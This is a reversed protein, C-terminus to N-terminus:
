LGKQEMNAMMHWGTLILNPDSWSVSVKLGHSYEKGVQLKQYIYRDGPPLTAPLSKSAILVGNSRTVGASFTSTSSVGGSDMVIYLYDCSMLEDEGAAVQGSVYQATIAAGSDTTGINFRRFLAPSFSGIIAQIQPASWFGGKLDPNNAGTTVEGGGFSYEQWTNMDLNYIFIRISNSSPIVVWLQGYFADFTLAVNELDGAEYINQIPDSIRQLGRRPRSEYIGSASAFIVSRHTSAVSHQGFTGIDAIKHIQFTFPNEGVLAWIQSRSFVLLANGGNALAVLPRTHWLDIYGANNVTTFDLPDSASAASFWVRSDYYTDANSTGLSGCLWARSLWTTVGRPSVSIGSAEFGALPSTTPPATEGVIGFPKNGNVVLIKNRIQVMYMRKSDLTTNLPLAIEAPTLPYVGNDDAFILKGNSLTIFIRKIGGWIFYVAGTPFAGAFASLDVGAATGKRIKLGGSAVSTRLDFNTLVTAANTPIKDERISTILGGFLNTPSFEFKREAM